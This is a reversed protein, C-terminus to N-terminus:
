AKPMEQTPGPETKQRAVIKLVVAIVACGLAVSIGRMCAMSFNDAETLAVEQSAERSLGKPFKEFPAYLIFLWLPFAFATIGVVETFRAIGQVVKRWRSM